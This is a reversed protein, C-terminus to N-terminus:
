SKAVAQHDLLYKEIDAVLALMLSHVSQKGSQVVIDAVQQYIPDRVQHLEMLRGYPDKTQLLPRNKDHHTRHWLDNVSAKLYIVIGAKRLLERNQEALVAGGGTALVINDHQVLEAIIRSERERFGSEGEIDFIYPISVGTRKQIEQDSDVFDKGLHRALARGMTTKGSGMMGVLVLNGTQLKQILINQCVEDNSDEAINM